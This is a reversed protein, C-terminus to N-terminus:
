AGDETGKGDHQMLVAAKTRKSSQHSDLGQKKRERSGFSLEVRGEKGLFRQKRWLWVKYCRAGKKYPTLSWKGPPNRERKTEEGGIPV